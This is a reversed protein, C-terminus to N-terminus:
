SLRVRSIRVDPEVLPSPAADCPTAKEGVRGHCV